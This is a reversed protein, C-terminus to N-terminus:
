DWDLNLSSHLWSVRKPKSSCISVFWNTLAQGLVQHNRSSHRELLEQTLAEEYGLRVETSCQMTGFVHDAEPFASPFGLLPREASNGDMKHLIRPMSLCMIANFTKNALSERGFGIASLIVSMVVRSYREDRVMELCMWCSFWISSAVVQEDNIQYIHRGNKEFFRWNRPTELWTLQFKVM